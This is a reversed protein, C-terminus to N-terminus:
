WLLPYLVCPPLLLQLTLQKPHNLTHTDSFPGLLADPASAGAYQLENRFTEATHHSSNSRSHVTICSPILRIAVQDQPSEHSNNTLTNNINDTHTTSQAGDVAGNKALQTFTLKNCTLRM